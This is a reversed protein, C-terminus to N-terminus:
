LCRPMSRYRTGDPLVRWGTEAPYPDYLRRYWFFYPLDDDPAYPWDALRPDPPLLTVQISDGNGNM